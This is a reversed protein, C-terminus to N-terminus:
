LRQHSGGGGFMKEDVGKPKEQRVIKQKNKTFYDFFM